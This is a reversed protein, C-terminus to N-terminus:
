ENGKDGFQMEYLQRYLTSSELLESHTGSATVKGKDMVIIIDADVITSLRHAIIFSTRGKCFTKLAKQIKAESDSDIQSTAEDFILIAPNRLIARAIALRQLQGGSLTSGQEGIIENYGEAKENIFDDAYANAAAAKIDKIDAGPSGYSINNAITDNFVITNQTVIGLQGRLSGITAKSIDIGDILVQGSELEYFRPIMNLLTSKGSGNPGVVAVTQGAKVTINVDNLNYDVSGPYRFKINKFEIKEALPEIDVADAADSEIERDYLEFVRKASANAEQVSPIVDGLKRGSEGASALLGLLVIFSSTEMQSGQLMQLAFMMGICGGTFALSEVIPGSSAEVRAMRMQKNYLERNASVFRQMEWNEQRYGKIIKIGFFSEQLKGLLISWKQLTHKTAKNSKKGIKTIVLLIIPGSALTILTIRPEIFYACVFLSVIKLPELVAKGLLVTVGRSVRNTDQIFRSITDSVGEQTYVSLPLRVARDFTANRLNQITTLAIKRVAYGQVFRALCRALALGLICWIMASICKFKYDTGAGRPIRNLLSIVTDGWFPMEGPSFEVLERSSDPKVVLLWLSGKAGALESIGDVPIVYETQAVNEPKSDWIGYIQDGVELDIANTVTKDTIDEKNRSFVKDFFGPELEDVKTVMMPNPVSMIGGELEKAEDVQFSIGTRESVIKVEAWGHLGRDSLMMEIVPLMATVNIAMLIAVLISSTVAVVVTVNQDFVYKLLRKFYM